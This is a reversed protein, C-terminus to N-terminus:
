EVAQRAHPRLDGPARGRRREQGHVGVDAAPRALEDLVPVGVFAEIEGHVIRDLFSRITPLHTADARLYMYLINTDIYVRGGSLEDLRM